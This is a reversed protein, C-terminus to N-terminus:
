QYRSAYGLAHTQAKENDAEVAILRMHDVQPAEGCPFLAWLAYCYSYGHEVVGARKLTALLLDVRSNEWKAGMPTRARIERTERAGRPVCCEDWPDKATSMHVMYVTHSPRDVILFDLG